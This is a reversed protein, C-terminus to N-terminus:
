VFFQESYSPPDDNAPGLLDIYGGRIPYEMACTHM